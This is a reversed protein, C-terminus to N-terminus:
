RSSRSSAFRNWSCSSHNVRAPLESGVPEAALPPVNFPEVCPTGTEVPRQTMELEAQREQVEDEPHIAPEEENQDGTAKADQEQAATRSDESVGGAAKSCRRWERNWIASCSQSKGGEIRMTM